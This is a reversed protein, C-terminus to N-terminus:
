AGAAAFVPTMRGAALASMSVFVVESTRRLFSRRDLSRALNECVIRTSREFMAKGRQFPRHALLAYHTIRLAHDVDDTTPDQSRKRTPPHTPGPSPSPVTSPAAAPPAM